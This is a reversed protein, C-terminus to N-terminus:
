TGVIFLYKIRLQSQDYIIFEDYNLSGSFNQRKILKGTPIITGDERTIYSKPDPTYQGVGHTSHMGSPLNTIYNANYNEYCTGLAVECLLMIGLGNTYSTYMYQASKTSSNAFYLGNGFMSGTRIVNGPNIRLGSSIISVFNSLRSGHWLLQRNHFNAWPLFRTREEHRELSYIEQIRLRYHHGSSLQMYDSLERGLKSNIPIPKIDSQLSIYQSEIKKSLHSSRKILRSMIEADDLIKLLEVKKKVLDETNLIPPPGMGFNTPIVTYFQSSLETLQTKDASDELIKTIKDLIRYAKSIQSSSIAGLPARKLDLNFQEAINKFNNVDFIIEVLKSVKEDLTITVEQLDKFEKKDGYKMEIYDYKGPQKDVTSRKEWPFGTREHFICKFDKIAQDKKLYCEINDNGSYGVRGGRTIIFYCRKDKRSLLQMIFFKNCNNAVDTQNLTCAYIEEDESYITIDSIITSPCSTDIIASSDM